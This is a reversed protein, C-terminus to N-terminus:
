FITDGEESDAVPGTDGGETAQQLRQRRDYLIYSGIGAIAIGVVGFAYAQQGAIIAGIALVAGLAVGVIPGLTGWQSKGCHPCNDLDSPFTEDCRRCVISSGQESM